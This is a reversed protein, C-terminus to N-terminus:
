KLISALCVYQPDQVCCLRVADLLFRARNQTNMDAELLRGRGSRHSSGPRLRETIPSVRQLGALSRLTSVGCLGILARCVFRLQKGMFLNANDHVARKTLYEGLLVNCSGSDKVKKSRLERWLSSYNNLACLVIAPDDNV